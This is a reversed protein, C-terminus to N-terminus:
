FRLIVKISVKHQFDLAYNVDETKSSVNMKIILEQEEM